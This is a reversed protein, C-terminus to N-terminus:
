GAVPIIRVSLKWVVRNAHSVRQIIDMMSRGSASRFFENVDRPVCFHNNTTPQIGMDEAIFRFEPTDYMPNRLEELSFLTGKTVTEDLPGFDVIKVKDKKYRIM